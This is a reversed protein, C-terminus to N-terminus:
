SLMSEGLPHRSLTSNGLEMLEVSSEKQSQEPSKLTKERKDACICTYPRSKDSQGAKGSKLSLKMLSFRVSPGGRVAAPAWQSAGVRKGREYHIQTRRKHRLDQAQNVTSGGELHATVALRCIFTFLSPLSFIIVVARQRLRGHLAGVHGHAAAREPAVFFFVPARHPCRILGGPRRVTLFGHHLCFPELPSGIHQSTM